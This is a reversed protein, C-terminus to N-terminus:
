IRLDVYTRERLERLVEEVLRQREIASRVMARLQPDDWSYEGSENFETIRIVVWQGPGGNQDPLLFPDLVAGEKPDALATAYPGELQDIPIPGVRPPLPGGGGQLFPNGYEAVLTDLPTGARMKEAVERATAAAREVDEPTMEPTILIHRAQREPGKVKEVKIIHFGFMTEVVNSIAGPPLAFAVRAFAPVMREPRFWGLDGGRERTGPDDSYRKALREFEEGERLRRLLDEAEARAAARASDSARPPVVVQEFSITAPQEAFEARHTEFYERAEAETVPPPKRTTQLQSKYRDVMGQRRILNALEARYEALTLGRQERLAAELAGEGGFAQSQRSIQDDVMQDVEEDSVTISDRIAAQLLLLENIRAELARQYLADLTEPDTPMPRGSAAVMRLVEEALDTQLVVSDGVVAVVRDVVQGAPVTTSGPAADQAALPAVGWISAALLAASFGRLTM